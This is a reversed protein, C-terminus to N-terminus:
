GAHGSPLYGLAPGWRILIGGAAIAVGYPLQEGSAVAGRTSLMLFLRRPKFALLGLIMVGGALTTAVALAPLLSLGAFLAVAAFLKADGAGFVKFCYLLFCVVLAAGGAALGDLPRTTVGAVVSLVYLGIVALVARNPIRRTKVDSVACWGLIVTLAVSALLDAFAVPTM